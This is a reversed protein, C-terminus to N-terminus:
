PEPTETEPPRPVGISSEWWYVSQPSGLFYSEVVRRFVPAAWDSGQGANELIVAVAIDPVGEINAYTYGAFWAHPDVGTQATGTKGAAPIRMGRLRFNATGRPSAIVSVMTDQLLKLNEPALPLTGRAEPKFVVSPVGDVPQVREIIQPRYLTGGNGVAAVFTAVQIPTVLVTGQGIAGNTADIDNAPDNITGANEEIGVGTRQGLGFARAMNSINTIHGARYMSLGIHYYWPNCSRMLSEPLTLMGSPKTKCEKLEPDDRLEEQCYEWTWDYLTRDTLEKFEYQCDYTSEPTYLGSELAAAFTIIKYVSGLPYEGQTARNYLPRSPDNLVNGLLYGSNPNNPAFLNADYGPSSAMALVRGTDRELVVVAGSFGSIAREANRQLNRDLTLYISAAPRPDSQGLRTVVNGSPDIVYLAAGREGALYTEGLKELGSYGIKEDGCYGQRKYQALEEAPVSLVYGLTQSALNEFYFRAQYPSIQLGSYQSISAYRPEVESKPAEGVPVYMELGYNNVNQEIVYAPVGTLRQLESFLSYRAKEGLQGPIVGFAYAESQAVLPQGNRDYIDGRAPTRCELGLRNGGSLEPMVLGDEWQIRWEENELSLRAVMERQIDGLLVTQYTVRFAVQATYPSTLASLVEYELGALNMTDLADTYRKTFDEQSIGERSVQSIAAYMSPYDEAKWADLFARMAAQPDPPSTVTVAPPPLTPTPGFLGVPGGGGGPACAGLLVLLLVLTATFFRFKM